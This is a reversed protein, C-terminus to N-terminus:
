RMKKLKNPNNKHMDWTPKYNPMIPQYIPLDSDLVKDYRHVGEDRIRELMKHHFDERDKVIKKEEEGTMTPDGICRFMKIDKEKNLVQIENFTDLFLKELNSKLNAESTEEM